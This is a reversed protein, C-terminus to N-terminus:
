KNYFLKLIDRYITYLLVAFWLSSVGM